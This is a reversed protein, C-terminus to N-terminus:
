LAAYSETLLYGDGMNTVRVLARYGDTRFERTAQRFVGAGLEDVTGTAVVAPGVSRSLAVETAAFAAAVPTREVARRATRIGLLSDGVLEFWVTSGPLRAGHASLLTGPVDRCELSGRRQTCSVGSARAWAEVDARTTAGLAFGLAQHVPADAARAKAVRPADHGFPCAGTGDPNTWGFAYQVAPLHVLMTFAAFLPAVIGTALLLRRLWRM